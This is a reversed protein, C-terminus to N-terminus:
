TSSHWRRLAPYLTAFVVAVRMAKQCVVCLPEFPHDPWGWATTTGTAADGAPGGCSSCPPLSWGKPVYPTLSFDRSM